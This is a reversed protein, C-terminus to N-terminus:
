QGDWEAVAAVVGSDREGTEHEAALTAASRDDGGNTWVWAPTYM